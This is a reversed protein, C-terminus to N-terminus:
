PRECLILQDVRIKDTEIFSLSDLHVLNAINQLEAALDRQYRCVEPRSIIEYCNTHQNSTRHVDRWDYAFLGRRAFGVYDDPRPLTVLLHSQGITPLKRLLEEASRVEAPHDLVTSPIPAIGATTFVALRGSTDVALWALDEYIYRTM